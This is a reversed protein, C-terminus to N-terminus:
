FENCERRETQVRLNRSPLAFDSATVVLKNWRSKRLNCLATVLTSHRGEHATETVLLGVHPGSGGHRQAGAEGRVLKEDPKDGDLQVDGADDARRM